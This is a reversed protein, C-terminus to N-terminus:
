PGRVACSALVSAKWPAVLSVLGAGGGGCGSGGGGGGGGGPDKSPWRLLQVVYMYGSGFGLLALAQSSSQEPLPASSIALFRVLPSHAATSLSTASVLM